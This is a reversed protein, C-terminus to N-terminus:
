TLLLCVQCQEGLDYVQAGFVNPMAPNPWSGYNATQSWRMGAMHQGAGESGGAALTAIGFLRSAKETASGTWVRRWSNIMATLSCGYGTGDKSNGMIGGCNNEGQYWVWGAVSYNVFPATMGYYLRGRDEPVAGGTLSQNKCEALTENDMWSEIQSGGIASQILGIPVPELGQAARADILEAGFYMCTSSFQAFMSHKRDNPGAPFSSPKSASYTVNFWKFGEDCVNEICNPQASLSNWSTVYQPALAEFHNGMSGYMFHRLGSFKGSAIEKKLTDASFTYYTELAMNSQGSCYYVDGYTIRQLTLTGNPGATSITITYDGGPRPQPKLQATWTFQGHTPPTPTRPDSCGAMTKNPLQMPMCGSNNVWPAVTAAVTYASTGASASVKVSVPANAAVFGYLKAGTQSSRQLVADDSFGASLSITPATQAATLSTSVALLLLPKTVSMDRAHPM